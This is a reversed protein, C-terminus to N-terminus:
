HRTWYCKISKFMSCSCRKADIRFRRALWYTVRMKCLRGVVERKQHTIKPHSICEAHQFNFGFHQLHHLSLSKENSHSCSFTHRRKIHQRTKSVCVCAIDTKTDSYFTRFLSLCEMLGLLQHQNRDLDAQVFSSCDFHSMLDSLISRISISNLHLWQTRWKERNWSQSDTFVIVCPADTADQKAMKNWQFYGVSHSKCNIFCLNIKTVNDHSWKAEFQHSCCCCCCREDLTQTNALHRKQTGFITETWRSVIRLLSRMFKTSFACFDNQRLGSNCIIRSM